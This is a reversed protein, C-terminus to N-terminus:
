GMAAGLRLGMKAVVLMLAYQLTEDESFGHWRLATSQRRTRATSAYMTATGCCRGALRHRARVAPSGGVGLIRAKEKEGIIEGTDMDSVPRQAATGVIAPLFRGRLAVMGISSLVVQGPGDNHRAKSGHSEIHLSSAPGKRRRECVM